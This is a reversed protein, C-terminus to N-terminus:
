CWAKGHPHKLPTIKCRKAIGRMTSREYPAKPGHGRRGDVSGHTWGQHGPNCVIGITGPCRRHSTTMASREVGSVLPHVAQRCQLIAIGRQAGFGVLASARIASLRGIFDVGVPEQNEFLGSVPRVGDLGSEHVDHFPLHVRHQDHYRQAAVGQQLPVVFGIGTGLVGAGPVGNAGDGRESRFMLQDDRM